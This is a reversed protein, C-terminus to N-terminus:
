FTGGDLHAFAPVGGVVKLVQGNSGVTAVGLPGVTNGLLVGNNAVTALGTGGSAVGLATSLSLSNATIAVNVTSNATIAVHTANSTFGGSNIYAELTAISYTGNATDVTTTPEPELGKFLKFVGDTADRFLGAHEHAGVGDSYSGFFGIDLTDTVTNNSALQILPDIVALTSVNITVLSGTVTLNGAVQIDHDITLYNFHANNAHVEKWQMNQSGLDYTVNAAPMISTNVSGIFSINDTTNNGLAVDGNATFTGQIGVNGTITADGNITTNGAAFSTAVNTSTTNAKFSTGVSLIDGNVVGSTFVGSNNAVVWGGVSLVSANVTSTAFVSGTGIATSNITSYTSTNGVAAETVNLKGNIGVGGAVTLAGTTTNSSVSTDTIAATNTSLHNTVTLNAGITVNSPLGITLDNNSFSVDVENATGQIFHPEWKSSTGDYVLYYNNAIGTTDVDDMGSLSAASNNDVYDKVAAATLLVSNSNNAGAITGDTSISTVNITEGVSGIILKATQINDMWSSANAVLAQNATLVGPNRAGAIAVVNATNTGVVSGIYLVEGNSTYALEGPQLDNPVATTTSRKIQIITNDAM